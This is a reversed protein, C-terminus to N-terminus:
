QFHAATRAPARAPRCTPRKRRAPKMLATVRGFSYASDAAPFSFAPAAFLFALGFGLRQCLGGDDGRVSTVTKAPKASFRRTAQQTGV